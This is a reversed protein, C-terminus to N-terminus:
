TLNSPHDDHAVLPQFIYKRDLGARITDATAMLDNGLHQYLWILVTTTSEVENSLILSAIL